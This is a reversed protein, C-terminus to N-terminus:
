RTMGAKFPTSAMTKGWMIAMRGSDNTMDLFTWTLQEVTFPLSEVKMPIRAVDKDPTYGYAGWLAAKEQPDFKQQAPWRSVILTWVTPKLDIFLSYEGEPVPKDGLVLPVETKLRTTVNAGARWVPPPPFGPAGVDLAAKGYNEGAGFLDRGRQLPRGYTIEIWKGGVYNERGLAFTPREGKVWKGLVQVQAAGDPSMPRAGSQAFLRGEVGIIAVDSLALKGASSAASIVVLSLLGAVITRTM